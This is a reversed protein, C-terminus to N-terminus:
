FSENTQNKLHLKARCNVQLIETKKQFFLINGLCQYFHTFDEYKEVYPQALRFM